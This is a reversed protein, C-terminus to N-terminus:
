RDPSILGAHCLPTSMTKPLNRGSIQHAGGTAEPALPPSSLHIPWLWGGTRSDTHMTWYKWQAVRVRRGLVADSGHHSLIEQRLIRWFGDIYQTGAVVSVM